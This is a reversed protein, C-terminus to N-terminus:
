AEDNGEETEASEEENASKFKKGKGKPVYIFHKKDPLIDIHRNKLMTLRIWRENRTDFGGQKLGAIIDEFLATGGYTELIERVSKALPRQYFKGPNFTPKGDVSPKAQPLVKPLNPTASFVVAEDDYKPAEGDDILLQNVLIQYSKLQKHKNEIELILSEIKAVYSDCVKKVSDDM